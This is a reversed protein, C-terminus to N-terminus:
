SVRLRPRARLSTQARLHAYLDLSDSEHAVTVVCAFRQNEITTPAWGRQCVIALILPQGDYEWRRNRVVVEARQVTSLSRVRVGPRLDVAGRLTELRPVADNNELREERDWERIADEVEVATRNKFLQYQMRIGYYDKARTARTPPDYALTIRILGNGQSGRFGDPLSPIQFLRVTDLEMTEDVVLLVRNDFSHLARDLNPIGWGYLRRVEDDSLAPRDPPVEASEVM